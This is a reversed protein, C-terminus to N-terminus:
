RRSACIVILGDPLAGGDNLKKPLTFKTYMMDHLINNDQTSDARGDEQPITIDLKSGINPNTNIEYNKNDTTKTINDRFNFTGNGIQETGHPIEGTPPRLKKSYTNNLAPNYLVSSGLSDSAGTDV